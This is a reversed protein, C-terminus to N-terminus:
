WLTLSINLCHSNVEYPLLSLTVREHLLKIIYSWTPFMILSVLKIASPVFTCINCLYFVIEKIGTIAYLSLFQKVLLGECVVSHNKVVLFSFKGSSYKRVLWICVSKESSSSLHLCHRFWGCISNLHHHSTMTIILMM